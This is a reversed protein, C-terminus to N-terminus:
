PFRYFYHHLTAWFFALAGATVITLVILKAVDRKFDAFIAEDNLVIGYETKYIWDSATHTYGWVCLLVISIIFLTTWFRSFFFLAIARISLQRM